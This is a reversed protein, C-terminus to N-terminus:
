ASVRRGLDFQSCLDGFQLFSHFDWRDARTLLSPFAEIDVMEAKSGHLMRSWQSGNNCTNGSHKCRKGGREASSARERWGSEM